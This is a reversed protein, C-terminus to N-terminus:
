WESETGLKRSVNNLGLAIQEAEERNADPTFLLVGDTIRRSIAPAALWRGQNIPEGPHEAFQSFIAFNRGRNQASYQELLWAGKRDFEIRLAFGGIAEVVKAKAVNRETLLPRREVNVLMRDERSIPVPESTSGGAGPGGLHVRLTSLQRRAKAADTQCGCVLGLGLACLLYLNFRNRGISM